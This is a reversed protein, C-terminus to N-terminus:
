FGRGTVPRGDLTKLNFASVPAPAAIRVTLIQERRAVRDREQIGALYTDYGGASGHRKEHMAKLAAKSPNTGPSQLALGKV